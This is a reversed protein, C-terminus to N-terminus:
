PQHLAHQEWRVKVQLSRLRSVLIYAKSAGINELAVEGNRISRLIADADWLFKRDTLAERLAERVDVTDIGQIYLNYRLSGDRGSSADSNGFRAIDSLDPSDARAGPAQYVPESEVPIPEEDAFIDPKEEAVQPEPASPAQEPGFESAAHDFEFPEIAESEPQVEFRPQDEESGDPSSMPEASAEGGSHEVTGDVHVILQAGCHGCEILGFDDPIESSCVPCQAM